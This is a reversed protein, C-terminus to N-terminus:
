NYKIGYIRVPTAFARNTEVTSAGWRAIIGITVSLRTRSSFTCSRGMIFNNTIADTQVGIVWLIFTGNATINGIRQVYYPTMNSTMKLEFDLYDYNDSSLVIEDAANWYNPHPNTWLLTRRYKNDVYTKVGGSTVPNASSATPATDFTLTNQKGALKTNMESETYYRDDHTHGLAAYASDHNHGSDAKGALLADTESETYYRDDHTHAAAAKGALLADTESETYYRGDHDHALDAKGAVAGSLATVNDSLDSVDTHLDTVDTVIDSVDAADAKQLLQGDTETKTYYRSDHNHGVASYVGDHNHGVPSYVGAHDHNAAAKGALLTDTESETYYRDDHNHSADAKGAVATQLDAVDGSLGSVDGQLAAVDSAEAKRSVATRLGALWEDVTTEIKNLGDWSGQYPGFFYYFRGKYTVYNIGSPYPLDAVFPYAIATQYAKVDLLQQLDSQDSLTGSIDGWEVVGASSMQEWAGNKRGYLKGDSPAESPKAGLAASLDGSIGGWVAEDSSVEEWTRNKRGYLKGDMPPDDVAALDGLDEIDPKDDLANQLDTQSSLAGVIDGWNVVGGTSSKIAEWQCYRRGYLKGDGPADELKAGLAADLDSQDSLTGTIEGWAAAKGKEDTAIIVPEEVPCIRVADDGDRVEIVDKRVVIDM